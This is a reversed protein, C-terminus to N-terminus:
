YPTYGYRLANRSRCRDRESRGIGYNSDRLRTRKRIAVQWLSAGSVERAVACDSVEVTVNGAQLLLFEHFSIQKCVVYGFLYFASIRLQVVGNM